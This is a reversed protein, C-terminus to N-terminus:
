KSFHLNIRLCNFDINEEQKPLYQGNSNRLTVMKREDTQHHRQSSFKGKALNEGNRHFKISPLQLKVM